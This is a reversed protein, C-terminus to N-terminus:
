HWSWRGKRARSKPSQVGRLDSSGGFGGLAGRSGIQAGFPNDSEPVRAVSQSRYRSSLSHLTRPPM